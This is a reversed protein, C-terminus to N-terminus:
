TRVAEATAEHGWREEGLQVAKEGDREADAEPMGQWSDYLYMTRLKGPYQSLQFAVAAASDGVHVGTEVYSGPVGGSIIYRVMKDILTCRGTTHYRHSCVHAAVEREDYGSPYKSKGDTLTELRFDKRASVAEEVENTLMTVVESGLSHDECFKGADVEADDHTTRFEYVEDDVEVRIAVPVIRGEREVREMLREMGKEGDNILETASM